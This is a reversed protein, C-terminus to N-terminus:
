LADKSTTLNGAKDYAYTDTRGEERSKGSQEQHERVKRHLDIPIQACLNKTGGDM